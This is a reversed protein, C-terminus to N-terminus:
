PRTYCSFDQVSLAHSRGADQSWHFAIDVPSGLSSKLVDPDFFDGCFLQVRADSYVTKFQHDLLRLSSIRLGDSELLTRVLTRGVFGDAGTILVNM